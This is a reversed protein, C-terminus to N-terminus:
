LHSYSTLPAVLHEHSTQKVPTFLNNRVKFLLREWEQQLSARFAKVQKPFDLEGRASALDVKREFDGKFNRGMM